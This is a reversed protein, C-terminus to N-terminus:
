KKKLTKIKPTRTLVAQIQAESWWPLTTTLQEFTKPKSLQDLVDDQIAKWRSKSQQSSPPYKERVADWTSEMFFSDIENVLYSFLGKMSVKHEECISKFKEKDEPSINITAKM